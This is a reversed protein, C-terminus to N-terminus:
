LAVGIVGLLQWTVNDPWFAQTAMGDFTVNGVSSGNQKRYAFQGEIGLGSAWRRGARANLSVGGASFDEGEIRSNEASGRNFGLTFALGRASGDVNVRQCGLGAELAHVTVTERADGIMPINTFFLRQVTLRYGGEIYMRPNIAHRYRPSVEFIQHYFDNEQMLAGSGSMHVESGFGAQAQLVLKGFVGEAGVIAFPQLESQWKWGAGSENYRGFGLGARLQMSREAPPQVTAEPAPPPPPQALAISSSALVGLITLRM